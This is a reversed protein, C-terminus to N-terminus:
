LSRVHAAVREVPLDALAPGDQLVTVHGGPPAWVAPDTPGFLLLCPTGVAAALHGIGTDHGVFLRCRALAAALVPLPWNDLVQIRASALARMEEYVAQEAAGLVILVPSPALQNVLQRWRESPWNKLPSGSGPHLAIRTDDPPLRAAAEDFLYPPLTLRAPRPSPLEYAALPAFFHACAPRTAVAPSGALYLQGPNLPFHRALDGDPDPWYNLVLDFSELWARFPAALPADRYLQSWRAESQDHAADLTGDLVALEAARSNGALEIRAGPWRQRLAKLLPLTILFDGLAGGRLILVSALTM